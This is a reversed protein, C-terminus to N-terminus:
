VSIITKNGQISVNKIKPGNPNVGILAIKVKNEKTKKNQM